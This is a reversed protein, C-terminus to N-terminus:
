GEGVVQFHAEAASGEGIGSDGSFTVRFRYLGPKTVDFWDSLDLRMAEFSDLPALLRAGNGPDFHDHRRAQVADRPYAQNPGSISGTSTAHWLSLNVGKRLASKGDPARGLFETPSAHAIGLRNRIHVAVLIPRGPEYSTAPPNVM